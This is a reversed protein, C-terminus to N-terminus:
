KTTEVYSYAGKTYETERRMIVSTKKRMDECLLGFRVELCSFNYFLFVCQQLLISCLWSGMGLHNAKQNRARPIKVGLLM